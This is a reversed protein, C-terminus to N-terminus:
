FHKINFCLGKNDFHDNKCLYIHLESINFATLRYQIINTTRGNSKNRSLKRQISKINVKPLIDKHNYGEEGGGGRCVVRILTICGGVGNSNLPPLLPPEPHLLNAFLIERM